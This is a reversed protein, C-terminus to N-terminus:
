YQSNTLICCLENFFISLVVCWFMLHSMHEQRCDNFPFLVHNSTSISFPSHCTLLQNTINSVSLSNDCNQMLAEVGLFGLPSKCRLEEKCYFQQIMQWSWWFLPFPWWRLYSQNNFSNGKDIVFPIYSFLISVSTLTYLTLLQEWPQLNKSYQM